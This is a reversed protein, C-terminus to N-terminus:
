LYQQIYPELKEEKSESLSTMASCLNCQSTPTNGVILMYLLKGKSTAVSFFSGTYSISPLFNKPFNYSMAVMLETEVPSTQHGLQM